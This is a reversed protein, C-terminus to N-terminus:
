NNHSPGLIQFFMVCMKQFQMGIKLILRNNNSCEPGINRSWLHLHSKSDPPAPLLTLSM